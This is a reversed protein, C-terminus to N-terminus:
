LGPTDSFVELFKDLVDNLQKQPLVTLHALQESSLRQSPRDVKHEQVPFEVVTINGFDSDKDYIVSCTNNRSGVLTEGM